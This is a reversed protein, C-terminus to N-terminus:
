GRPTPEEGTEELDATVADDAEVAEEPEVGGDGPEGTPNQERELEHPVLFSYGEGRKAIRRGVRLPSRRKV